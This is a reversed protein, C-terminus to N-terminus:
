TKFRYLFPAKHGKGTQKTALRELIRMDLMKRQFNARQFKEGLITEYLRQLENMTFCEPMLNFGVLKYDLSRRLHVLAKQIIDDHDFAMQPLEHVDFWDSKEFVMASVPNVKSFDVLAFYGISIFRKKFFNEVTPPLHKDKFFTEMFGYTQRNAKGFVQFQELYIGTMGTHDCLIRHAAADIDEEQGIFGGHLAWIDLDHFKSLLVKLESGHFGFIVCDVSFQPILGPISSMFEEMVGSLAFKEGTNQM